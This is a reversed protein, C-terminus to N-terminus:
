RHDVDVDEFWSVYGWDVANGANALSEDYHINMPGKVQITRGIFSGYVDNGAQARKNRKGKGDPTNNFVINHDPAYIAGTFDNENFTINGSAKDTTYVEGNGSPDFYQDAIKTLNNQNVVGFILLDNADDSQVWFGGNNTKTEKAEGIHIDKDAYITAHVGSDVIITGGDDLNVNGTVWITVYADTVQPAGKPTPPLKIEYKDTGMLAITTAKLLSPHSPDSSANINGPKTLNGLNTYNSSNNWAPNAINPDYVIPLDRYYDTNIAGSVDGGSSGTTQILTPNPNTAGYAGSDLGYTPSAQNYSGNYYTSDLNKIQSYNNGVDGWIQNSNLDLIESKDDKIPYGNSAIDGNKGLATTTDNRLTTTNYTGDANLPWATWAGTSPNTYGNPNFSDTVMGPKDNKIQVMATLAGAFYNVPKAVLEIQRTTTKAPSSFDGTFSLVKNWFLGLKRLRNDLKEESVRAPGAVDTTGNARVRLWQRGSSDTLSVPKDITVTIRLNQNGEGAHASLMTSYTIFDFNNNYTGPTLWRAITFTTSNGGGGGNNDAFTGDSAIPKYTTTDRKTTGGNAYRGLNWGVWPTASPTAQIDKRLEAMAIDAGSE